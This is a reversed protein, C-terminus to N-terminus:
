ATGFLSNEPENRSIKPLIINRDEPYFTAVILGDGSFSEEVSHECLVAGGQNVIEALCDAHTAPSGSISHHHTSVVVFRVKRGMTAGSMSRLFGLEAGQADIHLIEIVKDGILNGIAPMDYCKLKLPQAISEALAEHSSSEVAGVWGQIFRVRNVLENLTANRRGIELNNPDPEVCVANSGSIAKLYWLSYYAWFAGLEVFLSAPRCHSLLAHFILEEQPEHHGKLDAIIEAMWAGYYGGEVVVLGNHMIQVRERGHCEVRGANSVKDIVDCDRCSTTMAVRDVTSPRTRQLDFRADLATTGVFFARGVNVVDFVFANDSWEYNTNLHTESDTLAPTVSYSGPGLLCQFTMHFIVTEGATVDEIIQKTYWTNSGWVVHGARDRLMIGLVLRDLGVNARAAIRLTLDQGVTAVEVPVGRADLLEVREVQAELTGSRTYLWGQKSRRQQVTLRASEKAAIMANYYDVVEDPPGDKLVRGKDLLIVRDCLARV